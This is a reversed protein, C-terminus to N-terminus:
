VGSSGRSKLGGPTSPRHLERQRRVSEAIRLTPDNAAALAADSAEIAQLVKDDDTFLIFQSPLHRLRLLLPHAAM